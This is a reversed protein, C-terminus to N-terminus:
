YAGERKFVVKITKFLIVIDLWISWNLVYWKDIAVREDYSLDNRGSVQWLGTIGPRVMYYYQADKKYYCSIEEQTVPRPGVFNMERRLVNIIQPLEDLSTKRLFAGVRTIRPDNKLKHTMNWEQKAKPDQALIKELRDNADTYMSRFKYISFAKGEKGVRRQKYFIPGKSDLKILLGLFLILPLFIPLSLLTFFLNICAQLFQRYRSKLRNQIVILNTRSKFLAYIHSQTLDYDNLLPIFNVEHKLRFERDIRGRLTELNGSTDLFVVEAEDPTEVFRYGLYPNNLIEQKLFDNDAYIYVPKRWLGFYYFLTKSIRKITPILFAMLVFALVLITHSFHEVNGSIALYSFTVFFSFFIGKFILKTEHWFDYRYTYIGEYVFIGVTILYIPYFTLYKWIDRYNLITANGTLDFIEYLNFAIWLSFAISFIDALVFLFTTAIKKM